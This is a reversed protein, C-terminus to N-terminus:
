RTQLETSGTKKVDNNVVTYWLLARDSLGNSVYGPSGGSAAPLAEASIEWRSEMANKMILLHSVEPGGRGGAM